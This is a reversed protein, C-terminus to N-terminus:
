FPKQPNRHHGQEQHQQHNPGTDKIKDLIANLIRNGVKTRLESLLRLANALIEGKFAVRKKDKSELLEILPALYSM